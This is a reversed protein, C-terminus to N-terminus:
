ALQGTQKSHQAAVVPTTAHAETAFVCVVSGFLIANISLALALAALKNSIQNKM